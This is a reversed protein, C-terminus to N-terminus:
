PSFRQPEWCGNHPEINRHSVYLLFHPSTTPSSPFYFSTSCSHTWFECFEWAWSVGPPSRVSLPVFLFATPTHQSSFAPSSLWKPLFKVRHCSALQLSVQDGIWLPGNRHPVLSLDMIFTNKFLKLTRNLCSTLFFSKEQLNLFSSSFSDLLGRSTHIHSPNPSLAVFQCVKQQNDEMWFNHRECEGAVGAVGDSRLRQSQEWHFLCLGSRIVWLSGKKFDNVCAPGRGAWSVHQRIEWLLPPPWSLTELLFFPPLPLSSPHATPLSPFPAPLQLQQVHGRDEPRLSNESRWPVPTGWCLCKWGKQGAM